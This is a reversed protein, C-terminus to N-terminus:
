RIDMYLCIYGTTKFGCSCEYEDTTNIGSRQNEGHIRICYETDTELREIIKQLQTGEVGETSGQYTEFTSFGTDEACNSLGSKGLKITYIVPPMNGSRGEKWQLTLSSSTVNELVHLDTPAEAPGKFM